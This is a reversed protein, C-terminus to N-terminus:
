EWIDVPAGPIEAADEELEQDMQATWRISEEASRSLDRYFRQGVSGPQLTSAVASAHDRRRADEPAPAGPEHGRVGSSTSQWLDNRVSRLCESGLRSARRLLYDVIEVETLVFTAPAESLVTSAAMVRQVEPADMWGELVARVVPDVGPVIAWWVLPAWFRHRPRDLNEATWELVSELARQYDPSGNVRLPSHPAQWGYPLPLYKGDYVADTSLDVRRRLFGVVDLPATESLREVVRQVGHVDLAPCSELTTLLVKRHEPLLRAVPFPGDDGLLQCVAQAVLGSGDVPVRLLMELALAPNTRAVRTATRAVAARVVPDSHRGLRALMGTEAPSPPPMGEDDRAMAELVGRILVPDDREVAEAVHESARGVDAGRLWAFAMPWVPEFPSARQRLRDEVVLRSVEPDLRFVLDCFPRAVTIDVEKRAALARLRDALRLVISEASSGVTVEGAVDGLFQRWAPEAEAYDRGNAFWPPPTWHSLAQSLRLDASEGIADLVARAAAGYAGDRGIKRWVIDLIRDLLVPDLAHQALTEQLRDLVAVVEPEWTAVFLPDDDRGFPEHPLLMAKSLTELAQAALSVSPGRLAEFAAELVRDRIRRVPEPLVRGVRFELAHEEVRRPEVLNTAFVPDLLAFPSYPLEELRDDDMWGLVIGVAQDVFSFPKELRYSVLERLIRIAHNPDANSPRDDGCALEWLLTMAGSTSTAVHAAGRVFAPVEMLVHRYDMQGGFWGRLGDEEEDKETPERVAIGALELVRAPQYGSIPALSRLLEARGLIGASRFQEKVTAWIGDLLRSRGRVSAASMQWDLRGVNHLLNIRTAGDADAFVRDAFGTPTSRGDVLCAEAVLVDGLLDPVIRVRRARRLLIGAAELTGLVRLVRHAELGLLKEAMAAFRQEDTVPQVVAILELVDGVVPQDRRALRGLLEDRFARLLEKRFDPERGLLRPNARGSAVLRCAVVTALPCDRTLEGVRPAIHAPGDYRDLVQSALASAQDGSLDALRLVSKAEDDRPQRGARSLEELVHELGYPRLAILLRTDTRFRAVGLFLTELDDRDHADDVVLISPGRGLWDLHRPELNAGEALFRVTVGFPEGEATDSFARLLRTKGSGGRGVLAVAPTAGDLLRARLEDLEMERGVIEWDHSLAGGFGQFPRFFQDPSLWPGPDPVGLFHERHGGGPFYADLLRCADDTSLDTRVRRAIDEQDWLDWRAHRRIANRAGASAPSSLLLVYRDAQFTMAAVAAHLQVPGFRAHRKCQFALTGGDALTAVGDVGNQVDGPRGWRHAGPCLLHILDTCFLEFQEPSLENLPLSKTHPRVPSSIPVANGIGLEHRDMGLADALVELARRGPSSRGAEWRSLTQQSVQLERALEAQTWGRRERAQRIATGLGLDDRTM